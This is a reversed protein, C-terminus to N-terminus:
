QSISSKHPELDCFQILQSAAELSRLRRRCLQFPFQVARGQDMKETWRRSRRRRPPGASRHVTPDITQCDSLRGARPFLSHAIRWTSGPRPGPAHSPRGADRAHLSRRSEDTNCFSRNPMGALFPASKRARFRMSSRMSSALLCERSEDGGLREGCFDSEVADVAVEGAHLHRHEFVPGCRWRRGCPSARASCPARHPLAPDIQRAPAPAECIGVM